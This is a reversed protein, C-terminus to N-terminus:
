LLPRKVKLVFIGKSSTKSKPLHIVTATVLHKSSRGHDLGLLPVMMMGRRVVRTDDDGEDDDDNGGKDDDDGGSGSGGVDDKPLKSGHAIKFCIYGWLNLIQKKGPQGPGQM